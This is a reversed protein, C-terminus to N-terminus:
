MEANFVDSVIVVTQTKHIRYQNLMLQNPVSQKSTYAPRTNVLSKVFFIRM